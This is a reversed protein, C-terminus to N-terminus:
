LPEGRAPLDTLLESLIAQLGSWDGTQVRTRDKRGSRVRARFAEQIRRKDLVEGQYRGIGPIFARWQVPSLEGSADTLVDVGLYLEISGALGNVDSLERTGTPYEATPPGLTPYRRLREIDPFRRVTINDPLRDIALSRLADAAAADNDFVAVVRNAIGAAAFSRVLRVLAGAGGEPREDYDLFRVVDTLHPLLLELAASLFEADTRGETLVVIPAHSGAQTRLTALAESSIKAPDEGEGLDDEVLRTADLCVDEDPFALLVARLAYPPHWDVVISLLWELSGVPPDRLSAAGALESEPPKAAAAQVRELWLSPTLEDLAADEAAWYAALEPAGSFEALKHRVRGEGHLFYELYHAVSEPTVGLADLRQAIAMGSARYRYVHVLEIAAEATWRGVPDWEGVTVQEVTLMDDRFAVLLENDIGERLESVLFGGVTLLGYSSV